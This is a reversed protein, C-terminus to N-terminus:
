VTAKRGEFSRLKIETWLQLGRREGEEWRKELYDRILDILVSDVPPRRHEPEVGAALWREVTRVSMGIRPAIGCPLLGAVCLDLSEVYLSSRHSRRSCRLADLKTAPEPEPKAKDNITKGAAGVAKRYRGVAM